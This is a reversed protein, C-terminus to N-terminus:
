YYGGISAPRRKFYSGLKYTYFPTQFLISLHKHLHSHKASSTIHFEVDLTSHFTNFSVRARSDVGEKEHVGDSILFEHHRYALDPYKKRRPMVPEQKPASFM